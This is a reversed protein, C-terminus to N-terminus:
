RVSQQQVVPQSVRVPQARMMPVFNVQPRQYSSETYLTHDHRLVRQPSDSRPQSSPPSQSVRQPTPIREQDIIRYDARSTPVAVQEMSYNQSQYSTGLVREGLIRVEHPEVQRREQAVSRSHVEYQDYRADYDVERGQVYRPELYEVGDRARQPSGRLVTSASRM